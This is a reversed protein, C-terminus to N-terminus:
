RSWKPDYVEEYNKKIYKSTNDIGGFLKFITKSMFHFIFCDLAIGIKYGAKVIRRCYDTDEVLGWGYAEDLLGLKKFIWRKFLVCFFPAMRGENDLYQGDYRRTLENSYDVVRKQLEDISIPEERGGIDLVPFGRLYQYQYKCIQYKNGDVPDTELRLPSIIAFDKEEKAVAVLKGLWDETLIIDNNALVIYEGKSARIGINSARPFGCNKKLQIVKDPIGCNLLYDRTPKRSGNDVIILEYPHRTNKALSELALRTVKLENWVLMVISVLNNQYKVPSLDSGNQLYKMTAQSPKRERM